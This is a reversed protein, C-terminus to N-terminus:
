TPIDEPIEEEIELASETRQEESRSVIGLQSLLDPAVYYTLNEQPLRKQLELVLARTTAWDQQRAGNEIMQSFVDGLRVMTLPSTLLQRSLLLANSGEDKDFLRKMELYKDVETIKKEVSQKLAAHVSDEHKLLCRRAEHLAGLGKEYNGHEDIEVQACSVYFNALLHPAKGKTYFSIISKLLDPKSKWDETQLYNGAMVYIEKQRSVGAFFIIKDTDGSKLLCKMAKIKDGAQTFLKTALHYNAQMAAVNGLQSLVTLRQDDSESPVIIDALPETLTVHKTQILNVATDYRRAIAYLHVARDYHERRSLYNAAKMLLDLDSEANLESAISEIADMQGCKFALDLAKHFAGAKHYLLVAKDPEIGELYTAAEIQEGPGASLALNWLQDDMAQEKCLRIANGCSGAVTYFHIAEEFQGNNEYQRALHYAASSDGSSNALQAARDFDQLFCLVRVMSLYDRAEEYYKMALSMDETSEVYQAWWKLLVPDKSQAIYKELKDPNDLLMRPVHTRHTEAKEFNRIARDIDGKLELSKGYRHYTNKLNIRDNTEAVEIAEEWMGRRQYLKNLLDYRGCSKYLSEAESYLQLHIALAAVRAELQPEDQALRLVWLGRVDRMNGLCVRAVDLRRTQVCMRALSTWVSSSTISAISKFAQDLNGTNLYYSFNIVASRTVDDVCQIGDFDRMTVTEAQVQKSPKNLTIYHPAQVGLLSLFTQGMPRSTELSLLGHEPSVHFCTLVATPPASPIEKREGGDQVIRGEVVLINPEHADWYHNTIFRPIENTSNVAETQDSTDYTFAHIEGVDLLYVHLTPSPLLSTYAVTLSVQTANANIRCQM